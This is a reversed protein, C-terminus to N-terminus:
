YIHPLYHSSPKGSNSFPAVLSSLSVHIKRQQFPIQPILTFERKKVNVCIRFQLHTHTHSGARMCKNRLETWRSPGTAMAGPATLVGLAWVKTVM